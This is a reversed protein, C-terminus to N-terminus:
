NTKAARHLQVRHRCPCEDREPCEGTTFQWFITFAWLTILAWAAMTHLQVSRGFGILSYVGHIEFGTFMMIIVLLAQSWHWFREYRKYIYIRPQYNTM